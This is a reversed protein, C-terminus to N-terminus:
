CIGDSCQATTCDYNNTSATGIGRTALNKENKCGAIFKQSRSKAAIAMKSMNSPSKGPLVGALFGATVWGADHHRGSIKRTAHPFGTLNPM